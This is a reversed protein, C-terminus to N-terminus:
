RYWPPTTATHHVEQSTDGYISQVQVGIEYRTQPTLRVATYSTAEGSLNAIHEGNITIPIGTIQPNRPITWNWTITFPTVTTTHLGTVPSVTDDNVKIREFWPLSTSFNEGQASYLYGDEATCGTTSFRPFIMTPLDPPLTWTNNPVSYHAIDRYVTEQSTVRRGGAIWLSGDPDSGSAGYDWGITEPIDPLLSWQEGDFREASRLTHKYFDLVGAYADLGGAVIITGNGSSVFFKTRNTLMSPAQSWQGTTINLCYVQNTVTKYNIFGGMVYLRDGIVATKYGWRGPAQGAFPTESWSDTAIDYVKLTADYFGPMLSRNFGGPIYIKGNMVSADFSGIPNPIQAILDWTRNVLDYRFSSENYPYESTSGGILYLYRDSSVMVSGGQDLPLPPLAEAITVTCDANVVQGFEEDLRSMRYSPNYYGYQAPSTGDFTFSVYEGPATTTGDPYPIKEPGMLIADQNQAILWLSSNANWTETGANQITITCQFGTNTPVIPPIDMTGIADYASIEQRVAASANIRGGAICFRTLDPNKDVSRLLAAKLGVNSYEPHRSKMLALVGAVMPSSFSTGDDYLYPIDPSSLNTSNQSAQDHSLPKLLLIHSGPAAISISRKGYSSFSSKQDRDDTAMVSIVNPSLFHLSKEIFGDVDANMNGASWTMIGPFAAIADLLAQSKYTMGWSNTIIDAHHLTAYEFSQIAASAWGGSGSSMKLAMIQASWATGTAGIGNNGVAAVVGACATGHGNYDMVNTNNDYFNYGHHGTVPDTWINDKLDPHLYDVGSDVVAVIVDSGTTGDWAGEAHIDAGPTGGYQGTNKLNWQLPYLPDSPVTTINVAEPPQNGAMPNEDLLVQYDPEAYLVSPQNQYWTIADQVTMSEPIHVLQLGPLFAESSAYITHAGISAHLATIQDPSAIAHSQERIEPTNFRILIQHPAYRPEADSLPTDPDSFAPDSASSVDQVPYAASIQLLLVCLIIGAILSRFRVSMHHAKRISVKGNM